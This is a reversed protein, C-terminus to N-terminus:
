FVCLNLNSQSKYGKGSIPKQGAKNVAMNKKKMQWPFVKLVTDEKWALLPHRSTGNPTQSITRIRQTKIHQKASLIATRLVIRLDVNKEVEKMKAPEPMNNNNNEKETKYEEELIDEHPSEISM